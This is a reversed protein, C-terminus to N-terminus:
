IKNELILYIYIHYSSIYMHLALVRGGGCRIFALICSLVIMRKVEHASFQNESKVMTAYCIYATNNYQLFQKYTVESLTSADPM